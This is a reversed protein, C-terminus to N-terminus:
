WAAGGAAGASRRSPDFYAHSYAEAIGDVDTMVVGALRGPDLSALSRRVLERPTMGARVVLLVADVAQQLILGEAVALIPPADVVVFAFRQRLRRLVRQALPSSLSARTQPSYEGATMVYLGRLNRVFEAPDADPQALLEALGPGPPLDLLRDVGPRGLDADVLLVGEDRMMKALALALNVATTTKGEGAGASTVLLACPEPSGRRGVMRTALIRYQEAAPGFPDELLPVGRSVLGPLDSSASARLALRPITALVPLEAPLDLDEVNRFSTDSQESLFAAALGAGLGALLGLLAIRFRRPAFPEAPVRPAEVVRFVGRTAAELRETLQADHLEDTLAEYQQKDAEYERTMAAVAMEHRPAAELRGRFVGTRAGLSGVRVRASALQDETEQLEGNLQLLRMRAPSIEYGAVPTTPASQAELAALEARARILEPHEETYRRRLEAIRGSLEDRRLEAPDRAFGENGLERIQARIAARRSELGAITATLEARQTETDRLQALISPVQEPLEEFASRKYGEIARERETIRQELRKLQEGIFGATARARQEREARSTALLLEVIRAAVAQAREGSEADFGISFTQPGEVKPVVRKRLAELQPEGLPGEVLEFERALRELVARRHVIETIRALQQAADLEPAVAMDAGRVVAPEVTLVAQSRYRAPLLFAVAVAGGALLLLPVLFALRRRRLIGVLTRLSVSDARERPAEGQPMVWTQLQSSM